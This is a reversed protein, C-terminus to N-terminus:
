ASARRRKMSDSASPPPLARTGAACTRRMSPSPGATATAWFTSFTFGVDVTAVDTPSCGNRCIEVRAEGLDATRAAAHRDPRERALFAERDRQLAGRRSTLVIAM